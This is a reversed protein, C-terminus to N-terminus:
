ALTATVARHDSGLPPGIRRATCTFHPTHLVHDIPISLLPNGRHWTSQFGRRRGSDILASEALFRKFHSSWPSCNFDGAAVVAGECRAILPAFKRLYENRNDATRRSIPPVPHMAFLRFTAPPWALDAQVCPVTHRGSGTIRENRIPFKSYIAVGFADSRVRATRYRYVSELPVLHDSWLPDIEFLVLVDPDQELLWALVDAHRDNSRLVNFTMIRLAPAGPAEPFPRPPLYYSLAGLPLLLVLGAALATRFHRTLFAGATVVALGLAYQQQFHTFLDLVWYRAGLKSLLVAM